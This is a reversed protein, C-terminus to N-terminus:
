NSTLESFQLESLPAQQALAQLQQKSLRLAQEWDEIGCLGLVRDAGMQDLFHDEVFAQDNVQLYTEKSPYILVILNGLHSEISKILELSDKLKQQIEFYLKLATPEQSHSFYIRLPGDFIASDFAPNFFKSQMLTSYSTTM